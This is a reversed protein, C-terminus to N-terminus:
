PTRGQLPQAQAGECHDPRPRAMPVFWEEADIDFAIPPRSWEGDLDARVACGVPICLAMEKEQQTLLSGRQLVALSVVLESSLKCKPGECKPSGCSIYFVSPYPRAMLDVPRHFTWEPHVHECALLMTAGPLVHDPNIGLATMRDRYQQETEGDLPPPSNRDCAMCVCEHGCDDRTGALVKPHSSRERDANARRQQSIARLLSTVELFTVGAMFGILFSVYIYM